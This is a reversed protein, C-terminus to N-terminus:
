DAPNFPLRPASSCSFRILNLTSIANTMPIFRVLM